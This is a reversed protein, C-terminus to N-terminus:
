ALGGPTFRVLQGTLSWDITRNVLGTVTIVADNGDVSAAPGGWNTTGTGIHPAYVVVAPTGIGVAGGTGRGVGVSVQYIRTAFSARDVGILTLLGAYGTTLALTERFIEGPTTGMTTILNDVRIAQQFHIPLPGEALTAAALADAEAEEQPTFPVEIQQGSEPDIQTHHRPM